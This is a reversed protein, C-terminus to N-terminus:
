KKCSGLEAGEPPCIREQAVGLLLTEAQVQPDPPPPPSVIVDGPAVRLMPPVDVFVVSSRARPWAFVQVAVCVKGLLEIVFASSTLAVVVTLPSVQVRPEVQVNVFFSM